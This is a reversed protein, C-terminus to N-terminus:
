QKKEKKLAPVYPPPPRVPIPLFLLLISPGMIQTWNKSLSGRDFPNIWASPPSSSSTSEPASQSTKQKMRHFLHVSYQQLVIRHELSTRASLVCKVNAALFGTLVTGVGLLLPYVMNIVVQIPVHGSWMMKILDGVTPLDLFGTGNNSYLWQLGHQHVQERLPEYFPWFMIAVGYWCGVCLFWLLLLFSRVNAYGICNNLWVCHHDFQLICRNCVSCHHCRPPRQIQCAECFSPDPDPHYRTTATSKAGGTETKSSGDKSDEAALSGYLAVRQREEAVNLVPDWGPCGGQGARATWTTTESSPRLCAGPSGFTTQLYHFLIMAIVYLTAGDHLFIVRCPQRKCEEEEEEETKAACCWRQRVLARISTFYSFTVLLILGIAALPVAPRWLTDLQHREV